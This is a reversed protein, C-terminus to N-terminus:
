YVSGFRVSVDEDGDEDRMEASILVMLEELSLTRAYAERSLASTRQVESGLKAYQRGYHEAL